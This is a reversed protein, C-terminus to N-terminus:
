YAYKCGVCPRCRRVLSRAMEMDKKLKQKLTQAATKAEKEEKQKDSDDAPASSMARRLGLTRLSTNDTTQRREQANRLVSFVRCDHDLTQLPQVHVSLIRWRGLPRGALLWRPLMPTMKATDLSPGADGKPTTTHRV